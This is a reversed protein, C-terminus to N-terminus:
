ALLAYFAFLNQQSQLAAFASPVVVGGCDHPPVKRYLQAYVGAGHAVLPVMVSMVFVRKRGPEDVFSLTKFAYTILVELREPKSSFSEVSRM